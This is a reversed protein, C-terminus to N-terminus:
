VPMTVRNILALVKLRTFFNRLPWSSAAMVVGAKTGGATTRGTMVAGATLVTPGVTTAPRGGALGPSPTAPLGMLGPVTDPRGTVPGPTAGAPTGTAPVLGAATAAGAPTGPGIPALGGEVPGPTAVAPTGIAPVMGGATAGGSPMGPGIPVFGATVVGPIMVALGTAGGTVEATRGPMHGGM